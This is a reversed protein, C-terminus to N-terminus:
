ILKNIKEQYFFPIYDKWLYKLLLLFHLRAWIWIKAKSFFNIIEYINYDRWDFLKLQPIQNQLFTYYKVDKEFEWPVFYINKSNNNKIYDFIKEFNQDTVSEPNINILINQKEQTDIHIDPDKYISDVVDLAFDKHLTTNSNYEKSIKYSYEERTIISSAKSLLLKYLLSSSKKSWLWWILVYNGVLVDMPYNLPYIWWNYPFNREHTLVEWWWWFNLKAQTKFFKKNTFNINDMSVELLEDNKLLRDSLRASDKTYIILNNIHYNRFIRNIIWILLIEDGLNQFWYYWKLFWNM